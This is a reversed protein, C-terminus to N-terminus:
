CFILSLFSYFPLKGTGAKSIGIFIVQPLKRSTSSPCGATMYSEQERMKNEHLGNGMLERYSVIGHHSPSEIVDRTKFGMEKIQNQNSHYLRTMNSHTSRDAQYNVRKSRDAQYNVRKDGISTDMASQINKDEYGMKLIM